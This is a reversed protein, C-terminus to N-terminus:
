YGEALSTRRIVSSFFRHTGTRCPRCAPARVAQGRRTLPHNTKGERCLHLEKLAANSSSTCRPRRAASAGYLRRPGNHGTMQLMYQLPTPHAPACTAAVVAASPGHRIPSNHKEISHNRPLECVLWGCVRTGLRWVRTRKVDGCLVRTVFSHEPHCQQDHGLKLMHLLPTAATPDACSCAGRPARHSAVLGGNGPASKVERGGGARAKQGSGGAGESM